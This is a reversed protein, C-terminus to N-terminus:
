TKKLFIRYWKNTGISYNNNERKEIKIDHHHRIRYQYINTVTEFICSNIKECIGCGENM